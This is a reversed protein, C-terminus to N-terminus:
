QWMQVETKHDSMVCEGSLEQMMRRWISLMTKKLQGLRKGM